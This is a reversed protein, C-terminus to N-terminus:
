MKKQMFLNCLLFGQFPSMIIAFDPFFLGSVRFPHCSEGDFLIVGNPNRPIAQQKGEVIIGARRAQNGTRFLTKRTVHLIQLEKPKKKECVFASFFSISTNVIQEAYVLHVFPFGSLTFHNYCFGALIFMFGQFSSMIEGDFLIV